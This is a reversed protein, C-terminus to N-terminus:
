GGIVAIAKIEIHITTPLANVEVTTRTPGHKVHEAYVRNYAAFDRDMDTLFVLMDVIDEWKAGADEVIVRLNHLVSRAEEAIDYSLVKGDAGLTVGPIKTDGKKRPGIGSIFLLNGVRRCHPYAGVPDPGRPSVFSSGDAIPTAM